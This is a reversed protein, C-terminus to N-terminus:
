VYSLLSLNNTILSDQKVNQQAENFTISIKLTVIIMKSNSNHWNLIYKIGKGLSDAKSEVNKWAQYIGAISHRSMAFYMCSFSYYGLCWEWNYIHVYSIDTDCIVVSINRKENDCDPRNRMWSKDDSKYYSSCSPHWVYLLFQKGKWLM